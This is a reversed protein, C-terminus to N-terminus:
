SLATLALSDIASASANKLGGKILACNLNKHLLFFHAGAAMNKLMSIERGSQDRNRHTNSLMSCIIQCCVSGSHSAVAQKPGALAAEYNKMQLMSLDCRREPYSCTCWYQNKLIM